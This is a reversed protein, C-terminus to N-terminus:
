ETDGGESRASQSNGETLVFVTNERQPREWPEPDDPENLRRERELDPSAVSCGFQQKIAREICALVASKGTGVPGEVHVQIVNMRKM